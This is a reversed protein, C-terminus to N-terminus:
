FQADTQHKHPRSHVVVTLGDLIRGFNEYERRGVEVAEFLKLAKVCDHESHGTATQHFHVISALGAEWVDSIIVDVLVFQLHAAM